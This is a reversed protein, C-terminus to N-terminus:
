YRRGDDTYMEYGMTEFMDGNYDMENRRIAAETSDDNRVQRATSYELRYKEVALDLVDQEFPHIDEEAKYKELESIFAGMDDMTASSAAYKEVITIFADSCGQSKLQKVDEIM